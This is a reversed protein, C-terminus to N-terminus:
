FCLPQHHLRFCCCFYIWAPPWTDSRCGRGGTHACQKCRLLPWYASRAYHRWLRKFQQYPKETTGTCGKRIASLCTNGPARTEHLEPMELLWSIGPNDTYNEDQTALWDEYAETAYGAADGQIGRMHGRTDGILLANATFLTLQTDDSVLAKDSTNSLDYQTIGDEEYKSCIAGFSMFEVAYGLADGAAGGILCGQFKSLYENATKDIM